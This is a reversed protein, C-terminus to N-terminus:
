HSNESSGRRRKSTGRRRKEKERLINSTAGRPSGSSDMERNELGGRLFRAVTERAAQLM